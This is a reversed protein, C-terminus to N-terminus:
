IMLVRNSGRRGPGGRVVMLSVSLLAIAAPIVHNDYTLNSFGVLVAMELYHVFLIFVIVQGPIMKLDPISKM